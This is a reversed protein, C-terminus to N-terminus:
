LINTQFLEELKNQIETQCSETSDTRNKPTRLIQALRKSRATGVGRHTGQIKRNQQNKYSSFTCVKPVVNAYTPGNM